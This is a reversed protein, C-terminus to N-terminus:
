SEQDEIAESNAEHLVGPFNSVLFTPVCMCAYMCVCVCAYMCVCVCCVCVCMCVCVGQIDVVILRHNSHEFTFHSFAQPTLRNVESVFGSNSNYKIYKGDILHEM